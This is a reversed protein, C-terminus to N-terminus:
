MKVNSLNYGFVLCFIRTVWSEVTSSFLHVERHEKAPPKLKILIHFKFDNYKLSFPCKKLLYM